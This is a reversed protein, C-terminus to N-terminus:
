IFSWICVFIEILENTYERLMSSSWKKAAERNSFERIPYDVSRLRKYFKFLIRQALSEIVLAEALAPNKRGEAYSRGESSVTTGKPFVVIVKWLAGQSLDDYNKVVAEIDEKQLVINEKYEALFIGEENINVTSNKNQIPTM